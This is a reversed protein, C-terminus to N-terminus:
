ENKQAEEEEEKDEDFYGAEELEDLEAAICEGLIYCRITTDAYEAGMDQPFTGENFEMLAERLLDMNHCINEEATWACFTYSGSANGTVSDCTWLTDSLYEELGERDGTWDERNIEENIYDRVDERVHAHYDYREM